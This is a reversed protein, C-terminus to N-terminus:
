ELDRASRIRVIPFDRGISMHEDFFNWTALGDESQPELLYVALTGLPQATRVIFSGTAFDRSESRCDVDLTVPTAGAQLDLWRIAVSSLAGALLAILALSAVGAALRALLHTFTPGDLNM